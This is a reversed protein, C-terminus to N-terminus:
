KGGKMALITEAVRLGDVASSMIGGAYGAGEGAPFIGRITCQFSEDRRIRVPSSSRTEVGTLLADPHSFGKLRRDFVSLSEVLGACVFEPLCDWLNGLTVGPQYSPLVAGLRTSPRRALFDGVRQVPAKFGGGGMVFARREWERQFTVGALPHDGGFDKPSVGVMLASNSNPCNRAFESMGNTVVGGEESAGPVVVGGPCMCFTYASYGKAGHHAMKYDAAGLPACGAFEGYLSRDILARSHEIRAGVSFSKAELSVGSRHLMEFTDRAGNGIALVVSECELVEGANVIVGTVRGEKVVFGTLKSGFRFEGGQAQIDKRMRKVTKRIRDTGVHPKAKYLIEAPAGAAVLQELVWRCRPDSISTNLKGDSFTGAGGEGFQINSETRLHGDSLLREVHHVREDVPQGRELLLPKAGARALLIGAFLGAPGTGVILPRQSFRDSTKVFAYPIDDIPTVHPLKQALVASEDAVDIDISYVFYIKRPHRADVGQRHLRFSRLDKSDIKLTNRLAKKLDDETHGVPLRLQQLRIM